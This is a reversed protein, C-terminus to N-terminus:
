RPVLRDDDPDAIVAAISVVDARFGAGGFSGRPEVIKVAVLGLREHVGVARARILVM